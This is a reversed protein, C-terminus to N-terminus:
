AHGLRGAMVKRLDIKNLREGINGEKWGTAYEQLIGRAEQGPYNSDNYLRRIFPAIKDHLLRLTTQNDGSILLSSDQCADLLEQIKSTRDPSRYRQLTKNVLRKAATKEDTVFYNLLDLLLGSATAAPYKKELVKLQKDADEVKESVDVMRKEAESWSRMGVIGSRVIKLGVSDLVYGVKDTEWGRAREWLLREAEQGPYVSERYRQLILPALTDHVLRIVKQGEDSVLLYGKKCAELLQEVLAIRDPNKYRSLTAAVEQEAATIDETVYHNLIDLILGSTMAEPFVKGLLQLQQDVYDGLGKSRYADYVELSFTPSEENKVQQWM